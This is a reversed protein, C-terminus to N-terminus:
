WQEGDAEGREAADLERLVGVVYEDLGRPLTMVGHGTVLRYGPGPEYTSAVIKGNEVYVSGILDETEGIRGAPPIAREDTIHMYGDGPRTGAEFAVTDSAGAALGDKIAAHLVARFRPNEVFDNLGADAVPPLYGLVCASHPAAPPTPLLSLTIRSPQSVPQAHYHLHPHGPDRSSGPALTSTARALRPLATRLRPALSLM